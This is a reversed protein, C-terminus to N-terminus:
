LKKYSLALIRESELAKRYVNALRKFQEELQAMYKKSVDDNGMITIMTDGGAKLIAGQENIVRQFADLAKIMTLISNMQTINSANNGPAM